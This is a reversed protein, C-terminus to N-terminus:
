PRRSLLISSNHNHHVAIGPESRPLKEWCSVFERAESRRGGRQALTLGVTKTSSALPEGSVMPDVDGVAADHSSGSV